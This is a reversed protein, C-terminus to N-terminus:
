RIGEARNRLRAAREWQRALLQRIQRSDMAEIGSRGLVVVDLGRLRELDHRFSERIRRKLKHRDVSRPVVRRGIALGLRHRVVDNPRVVVTLVQANLRKGGSFM